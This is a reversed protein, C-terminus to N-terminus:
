MELNERVNHRSKVQHGWVGSGEGATGILLASMYIAVIASPVPLARVRAMLV